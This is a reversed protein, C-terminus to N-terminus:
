LFKLICGLAVGATAYIFPTDWTHPSFAEALTASVPLIAVAAPFQAPTFSHRFAIVSLIGALLVCLSGEISREYSKESFLARARYKRRGFRVGVPEALGDGVGNILLPIMLLETRHVSNLYILLPIVVGAAALYQTTIWLLTRPRDEPRDFSLFMASIIGSRDRLPKIFIGLMGIAIILGAIRTSMTKQYTFIMGLASPLFFLAFHNIKRTYNVKVGKHSVLKGTAYYIALLRSVLVSQQIIFPTNVHAARGHRAAGCRLAAKHM